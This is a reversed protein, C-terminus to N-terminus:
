RGRGGPLADALTRRRALVRRERHSLARRSGRVAVRTQTATRTFATTAIAPPTNDIEFSTSELEGSLAAGSPNSPADSAVVRLTYTGDPVSTTDWVLVEDMLGRRLIRWATEGERRYSVDYVLKDENDDEAHWVFAQLGKQYIRRGLAPGSSATTTAVGLPM